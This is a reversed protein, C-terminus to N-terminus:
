KSLFDDIDRSLLDLSFEIGRRQAITPWTKPIASDRYERVGFYPSEDGLNTKNKPEDYKPGFYQRGNKDFWENLWPLVTGDPGREGLLFGNAYRRVKTGTKDILFKEFNGRLPVYGKATNIITRGNEDLEDAKSWPIQEEHYPVGNEQKDAAYAGTLWWWLPHQDQLKEKGPVYQEDYTHKDFRGNTLETFDFTTGFNEVAYNRSIESPTAELNNAKAYEGLGKSFHDYGHCVFDDVVVAIIRFDEVDKYKKNLEELVSHQVINGCGAAVNFLLTVKGRCEALLDSTRGNWSSVKIDYISFPLDCELPGAVMGTESM